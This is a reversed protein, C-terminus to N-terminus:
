VVYDSKFRILSPEYCLGNGWWRHKWNHIHKHMKNPRTLICYKWKKHEGFVAKVYANKKLYILNLIPTQSFKCLCWDVYNTFELSLTPSYTRFAWTLKTYAKSASTPTTCVRTVYARWQCRGFHWFVRTTRTNVNPLLSMHRQHLRTQKIQIRSFLCVGVSRREKTCAWRDVVLWCTSMVFSINWSTSLMKTNDCNNDSVTSLDLVWNNM